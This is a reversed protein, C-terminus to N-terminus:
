TKEGKTLTSDQLKGGEELSNVNEHGKESDLDFARYLGLIM